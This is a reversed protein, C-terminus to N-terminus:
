EKEGSTGFVDFDIKKGFRFRYWHGSPNLESLANLSYYTVGRFITKEYSHDHGTLVVDVGYRSFLSLLDYTEEACFNGSMRQSNDRKFFNTHTFVVIHRYDAEQADSLVDEIWARQKRGTAANASDMSIFLDTGASPTTVRFYYSTLPWFAAYNSWEGFYLDHNGPTCFFQWGAKRIPELAANVVKHNGEGVVMDGLCVAIKEATTDALASAVFETLHPTDGSSHIDALFYACYEDSGAKIDPIPHSAFYAASSEFRANSSPGQSCMMGPFDYKSCSSAVAALM